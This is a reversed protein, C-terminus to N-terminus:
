VIRSTHYGSYRTPITRSILIFPMAFLIGGVTSGLTFITTYYLIFSMPDSNGLSLSIKLEVVLIQSVYFILPLSIITWFKMKGLKKSYFSLLLATAVWVSLFSIINLIYYTFNLIYLASGPILAPVTSNKSLEM